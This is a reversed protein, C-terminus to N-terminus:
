LPKNIFVLKLFILYNRNKCCHKIGEFAMSLDSFSKGSWEASCIKGQPEPDSKRLLCWCWKGASSMGPHLYYRYYWEVSSSGSSRNVHCWRMVNSVKATNNQNTVTLSDAIFPSWIMNHKCCILSQNQQIQHGSIETGLYSVKRQLCFMVYLLHREKEHKLRCLSFVESDLIEQDNAYQWKSSSGM